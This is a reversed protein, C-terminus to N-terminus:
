WRGGPLAAVEAESLRQIYKFSGGQNCAQNFYKNYHSTRIAPQWCVRFWLRVEGDMADRLESVSAWPCGTDSVVDSGPQEITENGSSDRLIRWGNSAGGGCTVIFTDHTERYIRFWGLNQSAPRPADQRIGTDATPLATAKAADPVVGTAPDREPFDMVTARGMWRAKDESFHYLLHPDSYTDVQTFLTKKGQAAADGTAPPALWPTGTGQYSAPVFLGADTMKQTSVHTAHPYVAYPPEELVVMQFLRPKGAIPWQATLEARDGDYYTDDSLGTPSYINGHTTPDPDPFGAYPTALVYCPRSRLRPEWKAPAQRWSDLWPLVNCAQQHWPTITMGRHIPTYWGVWTRESFARVPPAANLHDYTGFYSLDAPPPNSVAPATGSKGTWYDRYTAQGYPQFAGNATPDPVGPALATGSAYGVRAAEQLYCLAAHMMLRAQTDAVVQDSGAAEARMRQLFALSLMVLIAILGSVLILLSGRRTQRM